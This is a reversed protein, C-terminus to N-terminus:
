YYVKFPRLLDEVTRKMEATVTGVVNTERFAFGDGVDLLIASKIAAPVDEPEGYGAVYEIRVAAPRAQTTPWQSGALVLRGPSSTEDVYYDSPPMTQLVGAADYYQVSTISQLPPAPIEIANCIPFADLTLRLTATCFQRSTFSEARETAARVLRMVLQDEDATDLRLHEKAEELSVPTEGPTVVQLGM